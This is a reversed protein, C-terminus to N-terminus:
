VRLDLMVCKSKFPCMERPGTTNNNNNPKRQVPFLTVCVCERGHSTGTEPQSRQLSQLDAGPGPFVSPVESFCVCLGRTVASEVSVHKRQCADGSVECTSLCSTTFSSHPM